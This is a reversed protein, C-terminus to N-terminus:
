GKDKLIRAKDRKWDRDKIVNRKDIGTRGKALGIKLKALGRKNFYLSLPVLTMGKRAVDNSLKTIEKQRLLVKRKRRSDHGFNIAENYTPIYSNILYIGDDEYTAYAELINGQGLRLSKVESGTLIIGAEYTDIIDYDRRARKNQAIIGVSIMSKNM